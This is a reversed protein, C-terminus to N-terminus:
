DIGSCKRGMQGAGVSRENIIVALAAALVGQAGVVCVCVCVTVGVCDDSKGEQM